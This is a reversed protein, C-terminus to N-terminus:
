RGRVQGMLFAAGSSLVEQLQILRIRMLDKRLRNRKKDRGKRERVQEVLFVAGSSLGARIHLYNPKLLKAALTCM